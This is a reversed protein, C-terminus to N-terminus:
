AQDLKQQTDRIGQNYWHVGFGVLAIAAAIMALKIWLIM